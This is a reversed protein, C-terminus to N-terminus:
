PSATVALFQVLSNLKMTCAIQRKEFLFMAAPNYREANNPADFDINNSLMSSNHFLNITSFIFFFKTM